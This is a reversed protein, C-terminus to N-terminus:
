EPDLLTTSDPATRNYFEGSASASFIIPLLPLVLSMARTGLPHCAQRVECHLRRWCGEEQTAGAEPLLHAGAHPTGHSPLKPFFPFGYPSHVLLPVM